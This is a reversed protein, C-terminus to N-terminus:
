FGFKNGSSAQLSEGSALAFLDALSYERRDMMEVPYESDHNQMWERADKLSFPTFEVNSICRGPRTVAEHMAGIDENSTILVMISLGQGVMGDCVNLLRSLGQGTERKATKSLLEGTDELVIVRWQKEAPTEPGDDDFPNGYSEGELLVEMLYDADGFFAEPDTIYHVRAWNMWEHALARIATTKGVGPAGHWLVLKGGSKSDFDMTLFNKIQEAVRAPYNTQIADWPQADLSRIRDSPNQGGTWFHVKVTDSSPEQAPLTERIADLTADAVDSDIAAVTCTVRLGSIHVYALATPFRGVCHSQANFTEAYIPIGYVAENRIDIKAKEALQWSRGARADFDSEASARMFVFAAYEHTAHTIVDERQTMGM